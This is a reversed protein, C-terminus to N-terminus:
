LLVLSVHGQDGDRNLMGMHQQERSWNIAFNQEFVEVKQLFSHVRHSYTGMLDKLKSM